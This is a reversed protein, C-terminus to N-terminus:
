TTDGRDRGGAVATAAAADRAEARSTAAAQNAFLDIVDARRERDSRRPSPGHLLEPPPRLEARARLAREDFYRRTRIHAPPLTGHVLLADGPTM